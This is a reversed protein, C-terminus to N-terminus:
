EVAFYGDYDKSLKTAVKKADSATSFGWIKVRYVLQNEVIYRDFYSRFGRDEWKRTMIEADTETKAFEAVIEYPLLSPDLWRIEVRRNYASQWYYTEMYYIPKNSGIGKTKIQDPKAGYSVLITKVAEARRESLRLNYDPDGEKSSNGILEIKAMPNDNLLSALSRITNLYSSSVNSSQFDFASVAQYQSYQPEPTLYIIFDDQGHSIENTFFFTGKAQSCENKIQKIPLEYEYYYKQSLIIESLVDSLDDFNDNDLYYFRGGTMSSIYKYSYTGVANGMAIIYIPTNANYAMNIVDYPTYMISANDSNFVVLVLAKKKDSVKQLEKLEKYAAKYPANLGNQPPFSLNELQWNAEESNSYDFVNFHDQNFGALKLKDNAKMLPIIDEIRKISESNDVSSASNDLLVAIDLGQTDNNNHENVSEIINKYSYEGCKIEIWWKADSEGAAGRLFNGNNDVLISHVLINGDDGKRIMRTVKSSHVETAGQMPKIAILYDSNKDQSEEITETVQEVSKSGEMVIVRASMQMSDVNGQYATIVYKTTEKPSVTLSDAADFTADIGEIKVRDAYEFDWKVTANEGKQIEQFGSFLNTKIPNNSCSMSVILLVVFGVLIPFSKIRDTFIKM